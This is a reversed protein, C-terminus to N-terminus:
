KSIATPITIYPYCASLMNAVEKKYHPIFDEKSSSHDHCAQLKVLLDEGHRPVLSNRCLGTWSYSKSDALERVEERLFPATGCGIGSYLGKYSSEDYSARGNGLVHAVSMDVIQQESLSEFGEITWYENMGTRWIESVAIGGGSNNSDYEIRM